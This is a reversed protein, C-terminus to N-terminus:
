LEARLTELAVGDRESSRYAAEVVRMTDIADEVSTPLKDSAGTVFSQLSGMSGAFADPFWNGETPLTRWGGGRSAYRLSDPKGVPYDLNVGMVAHLAGDTGEWQVYSRQSDEFTHGHNTAIFVRKWDGYDMIIISKTAALKPTQPNRITKALVRQPNGFWSRVLDIYHISHYLIELRPSTVIFSWLDWPMFVSVQVEMDHVDGLLGADTIHKAAAIVSAWRLQFNIAATLGKSRCLALIQEAEVLTDGMPKQILVAAGDPLLPLIKLIAGAPVAIDFISDSPAKRRAEDLSSGAFPIDFQRALRAAKETDLDVLAVVPFAARRYAPLHADHVIGGAGIMIIPRPNKPTVSSASRLAEEIRSDVNTNMQGMRIALSRM